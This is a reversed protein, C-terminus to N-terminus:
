LFPSASIKNLRRIAYITQKIKQWKQYNDVSTSEEHKAHKPFYEQITVKLRKGYSPLENWEASLITGNFHLDEMLHLLMILEKQDMLQVWLLHKVMNLLGKM